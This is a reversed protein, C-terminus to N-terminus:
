VWSVMWDGFSTKEDWSLSQFFQSDFLHFLKILTLCGVPLPDPIQVWPCCSGFSISKIIVSLYRRGRDCNIVVHEVRLWIVFSLWSWNYYNEFDYYHGGRRQVSKFPCKFHWSHRIVSSTCPQERFCLRQDPCCIDTVTSGESPALDGWIEWVRKAGRTKGTNSECRRPVEQPPSAQLACVPVADRPLLGQNVPKLLSM